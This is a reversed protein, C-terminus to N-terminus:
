QSDEQNDITQMALHVRGKFVLKGYHRTALHLTEALSYGKDTREDTFWRTVTEGQCTIELKQYQVNGFSVIKEQAVAYPWGQAILYAAEGLGLFNCQINMIGVMSVM